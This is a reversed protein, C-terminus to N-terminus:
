TPMRLTAGLLRPQHLAIYQENLKDIDDLARPDFVAAPKLMDSPKIQNPEAYATTAGYAQM